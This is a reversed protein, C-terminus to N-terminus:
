PNPEEITGNQARESQYRVSIKEFLTPGFAGTIGNQRRIEGNVQNGRARNLRPLRFEDGGGGGRSGGGGGGGAQLGESLTNRPAVGGPTERNISAPSRGGGFGDGGGGSSLGSGEPVGSNGITTGNSATTNGYLTGQNFGQGSGGGGSGGTGAAVNGGTMTPVAPNQPPNFTPVAPPQCLSPDTAANSPPPMGGAPNSIPDAHNTPPVCITPPPTYAVPCKQPNAKKYEENACSEEPKKTSNQDKNDQNALALAALAAAAALIAPVMAGFGACMEGDKDRKQKDNNHHAASASDNRGQAARAKQQHQDGAKKCKKQCDDSNKKCQQAQINTLDANAQTHRANTGGNNAAGNGPGGAATAAIVGKLASAEPGTTQGQECAAQAKQQDEKCQQDDQGEQAHARTAQIFVFAVATLYAISRSFRIKSGQAGSM